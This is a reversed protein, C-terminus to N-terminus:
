PRAPRCDVARGAAAAQYGAMVGYYRRAFNVAPLRGAAHAAAVMIRGGEVTVAFPKEALV